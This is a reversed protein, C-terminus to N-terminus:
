AFYQPEPHSPPATSLRDGRLWSAKSSNASLPRQNTWPGPASGPPPCVAPPCNKVQEVRPQWEADEKQEACRDPGDTCTKTPSRKTPAVTDRHEANNIWCGQCQPRFKPPGAWCLKTTPTLRGCFHLRAPAPEYISALHDFGSACAQVRSVAAPCGGGALQEDLQRM